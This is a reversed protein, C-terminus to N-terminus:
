AHEDLSMLKLTVYAGTALCSLMVGTEPTSFDRIARAVTPYAGEAVSALPRLATLVLAIVLIAIMLGGITFRPRWTRRRGARFPRMM